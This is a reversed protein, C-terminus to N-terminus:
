QGRWMVADAQGTFVLWAAKFRAKWDYYPLPRAPVWKGTGDPAKIQASNHESHKILNDIYFINPTKM